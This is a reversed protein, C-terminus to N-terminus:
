LQGAKTSRRLFERVLNSFASSDDELLRAPSDYELIKGEDLVLVLDNDIVTPIRHAVTIVTCGSTEERITKQIVNDTATDVSATAEDLVLIRKRQLLARALCVLQRQGISWNEGDEAVPADLHRYDQKVIGALHCKDVVEWIDHDTHQELPDINTRVTGQFLAPDQPIISMQSRLDQLGINSIDIEDIMIRGQSPEVVRFLAQILTSKGSGTRGVVGIKKGEPFICTIGKLVLPLDPSYQVQLNEIQIRGSEPWESKPRSNEVILPAESPINTFQLIREVSIMKNEVNCLNWIFWAQLVNLNLGYTAALGALSPDIASRPLNVLIILLVFFALNFLFNIRLCLWEMTAFNFFSVRSYDDIFSLNKQLFRFEQAFCRITAAGHLSESFHHLIPAKQISGMRALERASKIYYSQYWMSIPLIVLFIIFVQWAAQCMLIIISLLQILAFVLGALRYPIDTDLTSQDTSARNLIRSSPTSDFFSMPARFVSETMRTFFQQSTEIAITSLLFARGLIFITSGGSLLVFMGILQERSVRGKETGWAMWYNSAMQLGQFLIHCLLVPPVLSGKYASTVFSSYVSWKVRGSETEEQQSNELQKDNFTLEECEEIMEIMLNNPNQCKNICYNKSPSVQNLSKQHAAMHRVLEGNLDGILNEYKGSQVITGDKIVLVLDSADLFELQHTAYIVTKGHLTEMLCKKFIHAGTKADVASFPDDLLYIDSDSYVARALQIRQKQGGSLNIGREGVMTLDGDVLMEIDRKLACRELVDHYRGADMEKGFLVNERVTGTQIWASQPVLAKSGNTKVSRGFVKPIEGMISSLFSSKGSGVSGCIAVKCGKRIKIKETIKITPKRMYDSGWSYEGPEIEVAVDATTDNPALYGTLSKQSEEIIFSQMRDVSVKTQAIVSILEPLNYIPEQLIRFTALASLVTGASLPTKLVVCVGFTVVSVLTPSAWFLFVVASCTYLYRRLVSRETARLQLLKKMFSSEWSHLKLVKINKLTESTAKVRFDRAEMIKSHLQEQMSALPTNSVMVIITTFLAAISPLVGLNLGLIILAFIVQVPLLWIGHIHWFFDGIREVDVNLFNIVQGNRTVDHKVLLSKKYTLAMLAARIRIGIRHAGFYWQRQSLSEITKAFLFVFALLLGHRLYNLDDHKESLFKVFSTILLLCTYSAITNVGAFFANATLPWWVAHIIASPLSPTIQVRLAEELLSSAHEATDFEPISPIHKLRLREHRGKNFLPNLWMFMACSWIGASCFPDHCEKPLFPQQAENQERTTCFKPLMHFCLGISLPLTVLDVINTKPIVFPVKIYCYLTALHLIALLLYCVASFVWWLVLILPWRNDESKRNLSYLSVLSAATWTLASLVYDDISYHRFRWIVHLYFGLYSIAIIFNLSVVIKKLIMTKGKHRSAIDDVVTGGQRKRKLVDRLWWLLLLMFFAAKILKSIIDM